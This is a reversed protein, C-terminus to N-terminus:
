KMLIRSYYWTVPLVVVGLGSWLFFAFPTDYQDAIIGLGPRSFIIVIGGLFSVLSFLSARYRNELRQHLLFELLTQGLYFGFSLLPFFLISWIGPVTGILLIGAWIMMLSILLIVRTTLLRSFFHASLGAGIGALSYFFYVLSVMTASLELEIFLPQMLIRPSWFFILLLALIIVCAKFVPDSAPMKLFDRFTSRQSRRTPQYEEKIEPLIFAMALAGIAFFGNVLFPLEALLAFLFGAILHSVLAAVNSVAKLFGIIRVSENELKEKVILEYCYSTPVGSLLAWFIGWLIWVSFLMVKGQIFVIGAYTIIALLCILLYSKKRGIRDSLLGMPFELAVLTFRFVGDALVITTLSFEKQTLFILWVPFWFQCELLFHSLMFRKISKGPPLYIM